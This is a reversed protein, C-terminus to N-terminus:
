QCQEQLPMIYIYWLPYLAAWRDPPIHGGILVFPPNLM